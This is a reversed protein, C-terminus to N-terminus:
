ERKKRKTCKQNEQASQNHRQQKFANGKKENEKKGKKRKRAARPRGNAKMKNKNKSIEM